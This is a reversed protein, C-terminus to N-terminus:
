RAEEARMAEVKRVAHLVTTHDRGGFLKGIQPLSLDPRRIRVEYMALMRAAAIPRMRSASVIERYPIGSASSVREIITRAPLREDSPELEEIVPAPPAAMKIEQETELTAIIAKADALEAQLRKAAEAALEAERAAQKRRETVKRVFEPNLPARYPRMNLNDLDSPM